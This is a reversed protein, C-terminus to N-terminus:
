GEGRKKCFLSSSISFLPIPPAFSLLLSLFLVGLLAPLLGACGTPFLIPPAPLSCPISTLEPQFNGMTGTSFEGGRVKM